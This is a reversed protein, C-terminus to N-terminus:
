IFRVVGSIKPVELSNFYALIEDMRRTLFDKDSLYKSKGGEIWEESMGESGVYNFREITAEVLIYELEEPIKIIDKKFGKCITLLRSTYMGLIVDVQATNVESGLMTLIKERVQM